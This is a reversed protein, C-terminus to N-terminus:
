RDITEKLVFERIDEELAQVAIIRNEATDDLDLNELQDGISVKVIKSQMIEEITLGTLRTFIDMEIANLQISYMMIFAIMLERELTLIDKLLLKLEEENFSQVIQIKYNLNSKKAKKIAKSNKTGILANILEGDRYIVYKQGPNKLSM